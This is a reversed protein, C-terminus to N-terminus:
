SGNECTAVVGGEALGEAVMELGAKGVMEGGDGDGGAPGVGGELGAFLVEVVVGEMGGAGFAVQLGFDGSAADVAAVQLGAGHLGAMDGAEEEDSFDDVDGAVEAPEVEM